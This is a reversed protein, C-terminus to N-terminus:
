RARAFRGRGCSGRPAATDDRNRTLNNPSEPMEIPAPKEWVVDKSENRQVGSPPSADGGDDTFNKGVSYLAFDNSAILRYRPPRWRRLSRRSCCGPIAAGTARHNDPFRGHDIEYRGLAIACRTMKIRTQSWIAKECYYAAEWVGYSNLLMVFHATANKIVTKSIAPYKTWDGSVEASVAADILTQMNEVYQREDGHRLFVKWFFFVKEMSPQSPSSNTLDLFRAVRNETSKLTGARETRLALVVASLVDANNWAEQLRKLEHSDAKERKSCRGPAPTRM